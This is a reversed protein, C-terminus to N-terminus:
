WEEKKVGSVELLIDMAEKYRSHLKELDNLKMEVYEKYRDDSFGNDEAVKLSNRTESAEANIEYTKELLTQIQRYFKIEDPRM